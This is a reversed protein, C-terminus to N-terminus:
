LAISSTVEMGIWGAGLICVGETVDELRKKLKEQDEHTKVYYVGKADAGPITLKKPTSGTAILLKDYPIAAKRNMALKKVDTHVAYVSYIFGSPGVGHGFVERPKKDSM